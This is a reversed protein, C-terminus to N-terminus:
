AVQLTHGLVHMEHWEPSFLSAYGAAAPIGTLGEHYPAYAYARYRVKAAAWVAYPVDSEGLASADRLASILGREADPLSEL